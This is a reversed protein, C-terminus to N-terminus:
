PGHHFFYFFAPVAVYLMAIVALAARLGINKYRQYLLIALLVGLGAEFLSFWQGYHNPDWYSVPSRFRWETLPWLHMHADDRHCLFDIVSHIFASLSLAFIWAALSAKSFAQKFNGSKVLMLASILSLIGWLIFNHGVANAVQWWHMFYFEDFIRGLSNGQLRLGGIIVYMPLDPLIGGLAGAWALMPVKKGTLWAGMIIHTQSNM